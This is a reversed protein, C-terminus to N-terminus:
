RNARAATLALLVALVPAIHRVPGNGLSIAM